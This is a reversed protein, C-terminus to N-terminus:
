NSLTADVAHRFYLRAAPTLQGGFLERAHIGLFGLEQNTPSSGLHSLLDRSPIFVHGFTTSYVRIISIVVSNLETM